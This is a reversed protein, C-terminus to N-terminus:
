ELGKFFGLATRTTAEEIEELTTGRHVAIAEATNRTYAPECRKGRYPVPALYPADTEVMFKDAPVSKVTEHVDKANKFSAIGTFSVLHGREILADAEEPPGSFCHFVAQLRDDFPVVHNATDESSNRQHIVANLELQAALELQRTFFESQQAKYEAESLGGGPPHYYDLGIEGIAVVKPHGALDRLVDLWNPDEITHAYTPHIGVAAYVSPYKEVLEIADHSSELDCGITVIREVGAELARSVIEDRDSDFADSDLHAHTDIIM